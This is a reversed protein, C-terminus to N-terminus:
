ERPARAAIPRRSLSSSNRRDPVGPCGCTLPVRRPHRRGKARALIGDFARNSRDSGLYRHAFPNIVCDWGVEAAYQQCGAFVEVHARWPEALDLMMAVRRKKAM